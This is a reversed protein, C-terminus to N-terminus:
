TILLATSRQDAISSPRMHGFRSDHGHGAVPDPVDDQGLRQPHQIGGTELRVVDVAVDAPVEPRAFPVGQGVPRDVQQFCVLQAQKPGDGRLRLLRGLGLKRGGQLAFSADVVARDHPHPLQEIQVDANAGAPREGAVRQVEDAALAVAELLRLDIRDDEPLVGLPKVRADLPGVRRLLDALGQLRVGLHLVEGVHGAGVQGDGAADDGARSAPPDDARGEIVGLLEAVLRDGDALLRVHDALGRAHNLVLGLRDGGLIGPM